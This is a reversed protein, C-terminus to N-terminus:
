ECKVASGRDNFACAAFATAGCQGDADLVFTASLPLAAPTTPFFGNRGVVVVKVLGPTKPVTKVVVKVIGAHGSPNVYKWATGADNVVWGIGTAEDFAGAPVIVNAVTGATDSVALHAGNAVPDLAPTTPVTMQAVLKLGDDGPATNQKKLVLKANTIAVGGVCPEAADCTGDADGDPCIVDIRSVGVDLVLMEDRGVDHTLGTSFAFGWAREGVAGGPVAAVLNSSSFDSRFGGTVLVNGANDLDHGYNGSLGSVVPGVLAGALTYERVSGVFSADSNGVLLRTGDITVGAAYDLGTILDTATGRFVRVVRGANPGGADSVFLAKGDIAVDAANPISGAPVVEAGLAPLATTRTLADPIAFVTDGTLAGMGNGNNDAAYLVGNAGLAFGGLSNFGSAITTAVGDDLRIIQENGVGFAGQGVFISRGARVVDGQVTGPTTITYAAFGSAATVQAGARGPVAALAALAVGRALTALRKRSSM